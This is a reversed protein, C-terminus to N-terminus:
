RRSVWQVLEDVDEHALSGKEERSRGVVDEEKKWKMIGDDRQVEQQASDHKSVWRVLEDVDDPQLSGKVDQTRGIQDNEASETAGEAVDDKQPGDKRRVHQVLDDIDNPALSGDTRSRVLEEEEKKWKFIDDEEKEEEEEQPSRVKDSAHRVLDDIDGHKIAGRDTGAPERLADNQQTVTQAFPHAEQQEKRLGIHGAIPLHGESDRRGRREEQEVVPPAEDKRSVWRVLEDVDQQALSGHDVRKPAKRARKGAPDSPVASGTDSEGSTEDRRTVWRVLDSHKEDPDLASSNFDTDGPLESEGSSSDKGTFWRTIEAIDSGQASSATSQARLRSTEQQKTERVPGAKNGEKRSVWRMLEDVDANGFSKKREKPDGESDSATSEEELDVAEEALDNNGSDKRKEKQSVFKVLDDVDSQALSGHANKTEKPPSRGRRQGDRSPDRSSVWRVLEDVHSPGLSEADSVDGDVGKKKRSRTKENPTEDDSNSATSEDDDDVITPMPPPSDKSSLRKLKHSMRHVFGPKTPSGEPSGTPSEPTKPRNLGKRKEHDARWKAEAEARIQQETMQAKADEIHSSFLMSRLSHFRALHPHRSAAGGVGPRPPALREKPPLPSTRSKKLNDQSNRKDRSHHMVKKTNTPDSDDSLELEDDESSSSHEEAFDDLIRSIQPTLMSPKGFVEEPGDGAPPVDAKAPAIDFYSAMM